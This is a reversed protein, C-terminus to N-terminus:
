LDNDEPLDVYQASERRSTRMHAGASSRNARLTIILDEIGVARALLLILLTAREAFHHGPHAPVMDYGIHGAYMVMTPNSGVHLRLTGVREGGFVGEFHYSPCWGREPNADDYRVPLVELVGNRM